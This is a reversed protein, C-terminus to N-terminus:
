WEIIHYTLGIGVGWGLQKTQIDYGGYIVPGIGFKRNDKKTIIKETDSYTYRNYVNISDLNPKYGSVWATYSNNDSYVKQTIPLEIDISSSEIVKEHGNTDSILTFVKLTDHIYKVVNEKRVIPLREKITDIREIYIKKEQINIEPEKINYWINFSLSILLLFFLTAIIKNKTIEM